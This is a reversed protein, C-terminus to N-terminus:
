QGAPILNRSATTLVEHGDDRILLTDEIQLGGLGLEYYPLEINIVMGPELRIGSDGIRHIDSSQSGALVPAEYMELGIAHGVHHRQYHPIGADRVTQVGIDFLESVAIGPKAADLLAAIGTQLAAYYRALEPPPDGVVATRGTDAWYGFYRGGADSRVVDGPQIRYAASAPFCGASRTGASTEFHGPTTGTSAVSARFVREIEAESVGPAAAAFAAAIGDEVARVAYRLRDVEDATKIMRITRFTDNAEHITGPPLSDALVRWRSPPMGREDIGIASGLAGCDALAQRLAAVGSPHHSARERIEVIGAEEGRLVVDPRRVTHFTGYTYIRGVDAPCQALFDAADIPAVLAPQGDLPVLAYMELDKFAYITWNAFGSAYTVNEASTAVMAAWGRDQMIARARTENLLVTDGKEDETPGRM